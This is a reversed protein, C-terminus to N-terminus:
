IVKPKTIRGLLGLQINDARSRGYTNWCSATRQVARAVEWWASRGVKGEGGRAPQCGDKIWVFLWVHVAVLATRLLRTFNTDLIIKVRVCVCLIVRWPVRGCVHGHSLPRVASGFSRPSTGSHQGFTHGEDSVWLFHWVHSSPAPPTLAIFPFLLTIPYLPLSPPPIAETYSPQKSPSFYFGINCNIGKWAKIHREGEPSITTSPGQSRQRGWSIAGVCGTWRYAQSSPSLWAIM